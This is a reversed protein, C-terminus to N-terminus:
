MYIYIYTCVPDMCSKSKYCQLVNEVYPVDIKNFVSMDAVGAILDGNANNLAIYTATAVTATTVTTITAITTTTTEVNM